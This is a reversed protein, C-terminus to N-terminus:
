EETASEAAKMAAELARKRLDALGAPTERGASKTAGALKNALALADAARGAKLWTEATAQAEPRNAISEIEVADAAVKVVRETVVEGQRLRFLYIAGPTLKLGPHGAVLSSWEVPSVKAEVEAVAMNNADQVTIKVPERNLSVWVVPPNTLSTKTGPVTLPLDPSMVADKFITPAVAVFTGNGTRDQVMWWGVAAVVLAATAALLPAPLTTVEALWAMFRKLGSEHVPAKGFVEKRATEMQALVYPPVETPAEARAREEAALVSGRLEDMTTKLAQLEAVLGPDEACLVQWRAKGRADLEGAAAQIMLIETEENM